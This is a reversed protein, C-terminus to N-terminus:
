DNDEGKIDMYKLIVYKIPAYFTTMLLVAIILQVVKFYSAGEFFYDTLLYSFLLSICATSVVSIIMAINYNM